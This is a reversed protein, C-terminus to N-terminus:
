HPCNSSFTSPLHAPDTILPICVRGGAQRGAQRGAKRDGSLSLRSCTLLNSWV